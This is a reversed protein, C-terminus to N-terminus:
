APLCQVRSEISKKLQSNNNVFEQNKPNNFLSLVIQYVKKAKKDMNISSYCRGMACLPEILSDHTEGRKSKILSVMLEYAEITIEQRAIEKSRKTLWDLIQLAIEISINEGYQNMLGLVKEYYNSKETVSDLGELDFIICIVNKEPAELFEALRCVVPSKEEFIEKKLQAVEKCLEAIGGKRKLLAQEVAASARSGRLLWYAGGIVAFALLVGGGVAIKWDRCSLLSSFFESRGEGVSEVVVNDSPEAGQVSGVSVQLNLPSM